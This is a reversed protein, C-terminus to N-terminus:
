HGHIFVRAQAADDVAVVLGSQLLREAGDDGGDRGGQLIGAAGAVVAAVAVAGVDGGQDGFPLIVPGIGRRHLRQGATRDM